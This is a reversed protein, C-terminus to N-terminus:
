RAELRVEGCRQNGPASEAILRYSGGPEVEVDLEHRTTTRTAAFTCDVLLTHRGEAVQVRSYQPGVTRGDIKRITVTLPLGASFRPDASITAAQGAPPASAGDYGAYTACGGVAACAALIAIRRAPQPRRPSM